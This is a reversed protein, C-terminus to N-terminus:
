GEQGPERSASAAGVPELLHLEFEKLRNRQGEENSGGTEKEGIFVLEYWKGPQAQKMLRDIMATGNIRTPLGEPSKWYYVKQDKVGFKEITPRVYQGIFRDGSVEFKFADDVIQKVRKFQM